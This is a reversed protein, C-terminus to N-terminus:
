TMTTTNVILKGGRSDMTQFKSSGLNSIIVELVMKVRWGFDYCIWTDTELDPANKPYYYTDNYSLVSRVTFNVIGKDHVSGGCEASAEGEAVVFKNVNKGISM